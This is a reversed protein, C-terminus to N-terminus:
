KLKTGERLMTRAKEARASRTEAKKGASIWLAYEKRHSPALGDWARKAEEDAALLVALEEPAEITRAEDDFACEVLVHDGPGAAAAERLAHDVTLAHTGDGWPMLMGRFPAGNITGAVPIRGKTGFREAIPFPCRAFTSTGRGEPRYLMTEFRLKDDDDNM